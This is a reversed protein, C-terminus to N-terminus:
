NLSLMVVLAGRERSCTLLERCDQEMFFFM